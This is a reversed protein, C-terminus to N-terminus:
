NEHNIHGVYLLEKMLVPISGFSTFLYNYISFKSCFRPGKVLSAFLWNVINSNLKSVSVILNLKLLFLHPSISLYFPLFM